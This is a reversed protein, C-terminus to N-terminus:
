QKIVSRAKKLQDKIKFYIMIWIIILILLVTWHPMFDAWKEYNGKLWIYATNFASLFIAVIFSFSWCILIRNDSDIFEKKSKLYLSKTLILGTFWIIVMAVIFIVIVSLLFYEFSIFTPNILIQTITDFIM